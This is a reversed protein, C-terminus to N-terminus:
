ALLKNLEAINKSLKDMLDKNSIKWDLGPMMTIVIEEDFIQYHMGFYKAYPIKVGPRGICTVGESIKPHSVLIERGIKKFYGTIVFYNVLLAFLVYRYLFSIGKYTKLNLQLIELIPFSKRAMRLKEQQSTVAERLQKVKENVPVLENEWNTIFRQVEETTINQVTLDMCRYKSMSVFQYISPSLNLFENITKQLVIMFAPVSKFNYKTLLKSNFVPISFTSKQNDLFPALEQEVKKIDENKVSWNLIDFELNLEQNQNKMALSIERSRFYLEDALRIMVNGSLSNSFNCVCAAKANGTVVIQLSSHYWRNPPNNIHAQKLLEEKGQPSEKLDLCLVFFSDKIINYSNKNEEIQLLESFIKIQTKNKGCTLTGPSYYNKNNYSKSHNNIQEFANKLTKISNSNIDSISLKYYKENVIVIIFDSKTGKYLKVKGDEILQCTSFCNPYQGMELIQDNYKDAELDGSCLDDYISKAAIILTAARHFPNSINEDDKLSITASVVPAFLAGSKKDNNCLLSELQQYFSELNRNYGSFKLYLNLMFKQTLSLNENKSYEAVDIASKEILPPKQYHLLEEFIAKTRTTM